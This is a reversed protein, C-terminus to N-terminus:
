VNPESDLNHILRKEIYLYNISLHFFMRHQAIQDNKKTIMSDPVEKEQL